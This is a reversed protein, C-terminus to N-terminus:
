THAFTPYVLHPFPLIPSLSPPSYPRVSPHVPLRVQTRLENMEQQHSKRVKEMAAHWM